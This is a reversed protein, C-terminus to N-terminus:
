YIGYASSSRASCDIGRVNNSRGLRLHVDWLIFHDEPRIALRQGFSRSHSQFGPLFALALILSPPNPLLWFRLLSLLLLLPHTFDHFGEEKSPATETM